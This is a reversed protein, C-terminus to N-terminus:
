AAIYEIRRGGAIFGPHSINNQINIEEDRSADIYLRHALVLSPVTDNTTYSIVSPLDAIRQNIDVVFASQVSRLAAYTNDPVKHLLGDILRTIEDRFSLAEDTTNIIQM